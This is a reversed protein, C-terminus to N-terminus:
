VCPRVNAGLSWRPAQARKRLKCPQPECFNIDTQVRAMFMVACLGHM